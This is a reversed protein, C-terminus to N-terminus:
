HDLAARAARNLIVYQLGKEGGGKKALQTLCFDDGDISFDEM